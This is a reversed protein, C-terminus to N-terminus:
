LEGMLGYPNLNLEVQGSYGYKVLYDIKNKEKLSHVIMTCKIKSIIVVYSIIM